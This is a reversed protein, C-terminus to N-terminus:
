HAADRARDSADWGGQVVTEAVVRSRLHSGRLGWREDVRLRKARERPHRPEVFLEGVFVVCAVLAAATLM